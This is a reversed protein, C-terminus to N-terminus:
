YKVAALARADQVLLSCCCSSVSSLKKIARLMKEGDEQTESITMEWGLDNVQQAQM